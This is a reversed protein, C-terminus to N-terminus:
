ERRMIEQIERRYRTVEASVGLSKAIVAKKAEIMGGVFEEFGEKPVAPNERFMLSHLASGPGGLVGSASIYQPLEAYLVRLQELHQKLDVEDSTSYGAEIRRNIIRQLEDHTAESTSGERHIYIATARIGDGSKMCVFPVHDVSYEVLLVQFRKNIIKPYESADFAFDLVRYRTMLESPLFGKLGNHIDAKDQLTTLGTPEITKDPKESAGIVLCGNGTNAMGLVHKALRAHSPWEGKFDLNATEGVNEKLLGRLTQRSPEEFFRAFPEFLSRESTM